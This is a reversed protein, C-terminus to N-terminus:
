GYRIPSGHEAALALVSTAVGLEAEWLRISGASDGGYPALLTASAGAPLLVRQGSEAGHLPVSGQDTLRRLEVAWRRDSLQTSLHLLLRESGRSTEHRADFAANITASSNVVLVDGPRVFDSLHQFRTHVIVDDSMRSVMLRVNDRSLGRAEPPEHAELEPPLKFEVPAILPLSM